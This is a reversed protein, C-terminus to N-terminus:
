NTQPKYEIEPLNKVWAFDENTTQEVEEQTIIWNGKIDQIPNYLNDPAFQVGDLLKKQVLTLKYVIM